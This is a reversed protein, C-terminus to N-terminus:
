GGQPTQNLFEQRRSMSLWPSALQVSFAIMAVLLMGLPQPFWWFIHLVWAVGCYWALLWLGVRKSRTFEASRWWKLLVFLFAFYAVFSSAKMATVSGMKWGEYTTTDRLGLANYSFTDNPHFTLDNSLPLSLMLVDALGWAALGVAAGLVLGIFRMPAQDEVKGEALKAPLMVAWSGLTAVIALWVIMTMDLASTVLFSGLVALVSAVVAATLMSGTVEALRDRLSKASLQQQLQQRMALRRRWPRTETRGATGGVAVNKVHAAANKARAAAIRAEGVAGAAAQTPTGPPKLGAGGKGAANPPLVIARVARYILYVFALFILIPMWEVGTVLLVAILVIGILAKFVPHLSSNRFSDEARQLTAQLGAMIPEEDVTPAQAAQNAGAGAPDDRGGLPRTAEDVQVPKVEKDGTPVRAQTIPPMDPVPPLLRRIEAVSRVRQEPDKAMARRVIGQYPEALDSLDPEATLHKMLVEGVSEGEFPVHGTLMEYLIVGLAYIDIERGYRGNAIEPAMYHVTGVSETQGSRRSCSIFKSLGYDGIKVTGDDIFLNAPKMDRHVIGHDHLYSVGACIGHYWYLLLDTPMGEPHQDIVQDLSEGSVYEMVVWRDDHEDTRIDYLAILNQHKLNLCHTVGRLEVELNRRILKLAVEKGADSVAFYVEGFGGRGVGRKITYGDLPRSGSAYTFRAAAAPREAPELEPEHLNMPTLTKM